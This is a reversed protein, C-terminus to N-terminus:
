IVSSDTNPATSASASRGLSIDSYDVKKEDAIKSTASPPAAPQSAGANITVQLPVAGGHGQEM